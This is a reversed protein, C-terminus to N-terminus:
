AASTVLPAQKLVSALDNFAKILTDLSATPKSTAEAPTAPQGSTPLGTASPVARMEAKMGNGLGGTMGNPIAGPPQFGLAPMEPTRLGVAEEAMMTRINEMSLKTSDGSKLRKANESEQRARVASEESRFGAQKDKIAVKAKAANMATKGAETGALLKANESRIEKILSIEAEQKKVRAQMLDTRASEIKEVDKIKDAYAQLQDFEAIRTDLIAGQYKYQEKAIVLSESQTAYSDQQEEGLGRASQFGNEENKAWLLTYRWRARDLNVSSVKLALEDETIKASRDGIRVITEIVKLRSREKELRDKYAKAEAIAKETNKTQLDLNIGLAKSAQEIWIRVEKWVDLKTTELELDKIQRGMGEITNTIDQSSKSLMGSRFTEALTMSTKESEIRLDQMQQVFGITARAVVAFGLAVGGAKGAFRLSASLASANSTASVLGMGFRQVEKESQSLQRGTERSQKSLSSLDNTLRNTGRSAGQTKIVIEGEAVKVAM